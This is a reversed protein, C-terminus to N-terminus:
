KSWRLCLLRKILTLSHRRRAVIEDSCGGALKGTEVESRANTSIKFSQLIIVHNKPKIKKHLLIHKWWVSLTYKRGLLRMGTTHLLGFNCLIIVQRNNLGFDRVYVSWRIQTSKHGM